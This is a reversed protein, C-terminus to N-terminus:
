EITLIHILSEGSVKRCVIYVRYSKSSKSKMTCLYFVSGDSFTGSRNITFKDVADNDFFKELILTTQKRSFNGEREPTKLQITSNLKNSIKTMNQKVFMQELEKESEQQANLEATFGLILTLITIRLIILTSKM